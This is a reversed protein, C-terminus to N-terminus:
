HKGEERVYRAYELRLRSRDWRQPHIIVRYRLSLKERAALTYPELQLLSANLFWFPVSKDMIGYWRTPSRLNSPHDLFAVGAESGDIEGSFEAADAAFGYRNKQLTGIEGTATIRPNSLERALRVSLGAYGGRANGDPTVDPPTRDLVVDENGATFELHWDMHYSGDAAPASIRIARKETLVDAASGQPHYQLDMKIDASFDPRTEVQANSWRTAGDPRGGPEEWYNVHNLYKWCFFLAFHHPHDAPSLWTLDPGGPLAVPHFYTKSLKPSFNFQWVARGDKLLVVSEADRQWRLGSIQAGASAPIKAAGSAMAGLCSALAIVICQLPWAKNNDAIM